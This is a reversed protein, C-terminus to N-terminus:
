VDDSVVKKIEELLLQIRQLNAVILNIGFIWRTVAVQIPLVIFLYLLLYAFIEEM